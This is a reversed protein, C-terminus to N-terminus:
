GTQFKELDSRGTCRATRRSQTEAPAAEAKPVGDRHEPLGPREQDLDTPAGSNAPMKARTGPKGLPEVDQGVEKFVAIGLTGDDLYSRLHHIIKVKAQKMTLGGVYVDGYFGLCIMGDPRVLREGTIPRGPLAEIVEVLLLDPPEIRVPLDFFAGEHPAPNDPIAVEPLPKIAEVAEAVVSKKAPAKEDDWAAGSAVLCLAPMIAFLGIRRDRLMPHTKM